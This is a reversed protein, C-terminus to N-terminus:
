RTNSIHTTSLVQFCPDRPPLDGAGGVGFASLTRTGHRTLILRQPSESINPESLCRARFVLSPGKPLLFQQSLKGPDM